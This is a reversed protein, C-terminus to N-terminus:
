PLKRIDPEWWVSLYWSGSQPVTQSVTPTEQSDCKISEWQHTNQLCWAEIIDANNKHQQMFSSILWCLGWSTSLWRPRPQSGILVGGRSPGSESKLLAWCRGKCTLSMGRVKQSRNCLVARPCFEYTPTCIFRSVSIFLDWLLPSCVPWSCHVPSSCLLWPRARWRPAIVKNVRRLIDCWPSDEQRKCFHPINWKFFLYHKSM